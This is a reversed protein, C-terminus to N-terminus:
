RESSQKGNGSTEQSQFRLANWNAMANLVLAFSGQTQWRWFPRIGFMLMHGKGLPADVVAAKGALEGGNALLGSVLLSDTNAHFALIPRARQSEAEAAIEPKIRRSSESTDRPQVELVPQANFYVPFSSQSYGYLIPSSQEKPQARFIAGRTELGRPEDISVTSNFGLYIPLQTTNGTTILLGGRDVFRQLAAAGELGLAPRIDDTQDMVGLNPTLDSKKWPIPPGIMPRGSILRAPSGNVHPYMVVDFRDLMGSGSLEQDAIYTFPIGM